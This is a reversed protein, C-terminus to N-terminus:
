LGQLDQLNWLDRHETSTDMFYLDKTNNGTIAKARAVNAQLASAERKRGVGM